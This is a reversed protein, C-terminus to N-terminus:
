ALLCLEPVCVCVGWVVSQNSVFTKLKCNRSIATVTSFNKPLGTSADNQVMDFSLFLQENECPLFIQTQSNPKCDLAPPFRIPNLRRRCLLDFWFTLVVINNEQQSTAALATAQQRAQGM